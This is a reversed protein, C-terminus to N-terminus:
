GPEGSGLDYIMRWLVDVEGREILQIPLQGDFAPNSEMLWPGIFKPRITKGMTEFLRKLERIKQRSATTLSQGAAWGAVTRPSFGTMRSIQERKVGYVRCFANVEFTAADAPPTSLMDRLPRLERKRSKAPRTLVATKM